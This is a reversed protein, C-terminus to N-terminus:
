LGFYNEINNKLTKKIHIDNIILEYIDTKLQTVGHHWKVAQVLRAKDYVHIYLYINIKKLKM